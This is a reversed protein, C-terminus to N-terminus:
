VGRCESALVGASARVCATALGQVSARMAYSDCTSARGCVVCACAHECVRMHMLMCLIETCAYLLTISLCVSTDMEAAPCM